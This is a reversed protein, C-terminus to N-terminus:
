IEYLVKIRNAVVLCIRQGTAEMRKGLRDTEANVKCGLDPGVKSKKRKWTPHYSMSTCNSQLEREQTIKYCPINSPINVKSKM